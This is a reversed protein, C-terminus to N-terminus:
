NDSLPNIITAPCWQPSAANLRNYFPRALAKLQGLLLPAKQNEIWEPTKQDPETLDVIRNSPNSGNLDLRIDAALQPSVSDLIRLAETAMWKAQGLNAPGHNNPAATVDIVPPHGDLWWQPPNAAAPLLLVFLALLPTLHRMAM